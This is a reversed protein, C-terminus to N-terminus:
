WLDHGARNRALVSLAPTQVALHHPHHPHPAPHLHAPRRQGAQPEGRGEEGHRHEGHCQGGSPSLTTTIISPVCLRVGVLRSAHAAM